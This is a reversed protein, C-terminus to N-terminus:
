VHCEIRAAASVPTSPSLATEANNTPPTAHFAFCNTAFASGLCQRCRAPNSHHSRPRDRDEAVPRPPSSVLVLSDWFLARYIQIRTKFNIENQLIKILSVRQGSIARRESIPWQTVADKACQALGSIHFQRWLRCVTRCRSALVLTANVACEISALATASRCRVWRRSQLM